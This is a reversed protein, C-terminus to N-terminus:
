KKMKSRIRKYKEENYSNIAEELLNVEATYIIGDTEGKPKEANGAYIDNRRGILRDLSYCTCLTNLDYERDSNVWWDDRETKFEKEDYRNIAENLTDLSLDPIMELIEVEAIKEHLEIGAMMAEAQRKLQDLTYCTCLTEIDYERKAISPKQHKYNEINDM